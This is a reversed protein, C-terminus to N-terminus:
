IPVIRHGCSEGGFRRVKDGLGDKWAKQHPSANDQEWVYGRRGFRRNLDDIVKNTDLMARYSDGNVSAPCRILKSRYNPGIAGWVMVHLPHLELEYTGEALFEGRKRWIGGLDLNQAVMSEDTFIIVPDNWHGDQWKCFAVRTVKRKPTLPPVPITKYFGFGSKRRQTRVSSASVQVDDRVAAKRVSLHRDSETASVIAKTTSEPISVPRGMKAQFTGTAKLKALFDYCGSTSIDLDEAIRRYPENAANRRIIEAKTADSFYRSKKKIPTQSPPPVTGPGSIQPVPLPRRVTGTGSIQPLPLPRFPTHPQPVEVPQADEEDSDSESESGEEYQEEEPLEEEEMLGFPVHDLATHPGAEYDEEEDEMLKIGHPADGLGAYSGDDDYEEEDEMLKIGHPADGLGAYPGAEYDEEEDAEPSLVVSPKRPTLKKAVLPKRGTVIDSARRLSEPTQINECPSRWLHLFGCEDGAVLSEGSWALQTMVAHCLGLVQIPWIRSSDFECVFVGDYRGALAVRDVTAPIAEPRTEAQLSELDYSSM